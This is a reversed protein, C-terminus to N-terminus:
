LISRGLIQEVLVALVRSITSPSTTSDPQPNVQGLLHNVERLVNESMMNVLKDMEPSPIASVDVASQGIAQWIRGKM